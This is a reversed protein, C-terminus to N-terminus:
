ANRILNLVDHYFEDLEDSATPYEHEYIMIIDGILKKKLEDIAERKMAASAKKFETMRIVRKFYGNVRVCDLDTTVVSHVINQKTRLIVTKM